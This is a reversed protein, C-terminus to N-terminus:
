ISFFKLQNTKLILKTKKRSCFHRPQRDRSQSLADVRVALLKTKSKAIYTYYEV